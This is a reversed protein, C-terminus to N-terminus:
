APSMRCPGIANRRDPVRAAREEENLRGLFHQDGILAFLERPVDIQVHGMGWDSVRRSRLIRDAMVFAVGEDDVRDAHVGLGKGVIEARRVGLFQMDYFRM